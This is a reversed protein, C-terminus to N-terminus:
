RLAALLGISVRQEADAVLRGAAVDHELRLHEGRIGRPQQIVQYVLLHDDGAPEVAAHRDRDCQAPAVPRRDHVLQLDVARQHEVFLIRFTSRAASAPGQLENQVARVLESFAGELDEGLSLIFFAPGQM